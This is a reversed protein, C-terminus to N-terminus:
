EDRIGGELYYQIRDRTAESLKVFEVIREDNEHRDAVIELTLSQNRLHDLLTDVHQPDGRVTRREGITDGDAVRQITEVMPLLISEGLDHARERLRDDNTEGEAAQFADRVVRSFVFDRGRDFPLSFAYALADHHQSETTYKLMAEGEDSKM